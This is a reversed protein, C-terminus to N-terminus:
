YGLLPQDYEYLISNVDVIDSIGNLICYKVILDAESSPSLALGARQLLDTTEDLNMGLAIAFALATPKSPKYNRNSRIKSFLRRDINAKAYVESDKFGKADIAALLKEQFTEGLPGIIDDLSSGAAGPPMSSDFMANRKSFMKKELIGERAKPATEETVIPAYEEAAESAYCVSEEYLLPEEWEADIFEQVQRLLEAPVTRIENRMEENQNDM